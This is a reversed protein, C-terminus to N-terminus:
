RQQLVHYPALTSSCFNNMCFNNTHLDHHVSLRDVQQGRIYHVIHIYLYMCIYMHLLM